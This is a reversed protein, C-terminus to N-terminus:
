DAYPPRTGPRLTRCPCNPRPVTNLTSSSSSSMFSTTFNVVTPVLVSRALYALSSIAYRFSLVTLVQLEVGSRNALAAIRFERTNFRRDQRSAPRAGRPRRETEQIRAIITRGNRQEGDQTGVVRQLTIVFTKTTTEEGQRVQAEVTVDKSILEGEFKDVAFAPQNPQSLSAEAPSWPNSATRTRVIWLAM